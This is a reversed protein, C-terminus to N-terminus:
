HPVGREEFIELIESLKYRRRAAFESVESEMALRQGEQIAAEVMARNGLKQVYHRAFTQIRSPDLVYIALAFNRIRDVWSPSYGRGRPGSYHAGWIAPDMLVQGGLCWSKLDLYPEGGSYGRFLPNFGKLQDVYWERTMCMAWIGTAAIQYPEEVRRVPPGWSGWFDTDLKLKYHGWKRKRDNFVVPYHVIANEPYLGLNIMAFLRDFFYPCLLVHSDLFLLWKGMAYGAGADRPHYPSQIADAEIYRVRDDHLDGVLKGCETGHKSRVPENDAVIIEFDQRDPGLLQLLGQLTFWLNAPEKRTPIVISLTLMGAFTAAPM